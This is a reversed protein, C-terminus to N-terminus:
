AANAAEMEPEAHPESLFRVVLNLLDAPMMPKGLVGDFGAARRHREDLAESGASFAVIPVAANPGTGRRIAAVAGVGDLVPMRLDMLILDFAEAAAIGVAEQGNAAESVVLGMPQLIARVLERNVAHDDVVLVRAARPPLIQSAAPMDIITPEALPAAIEFYFCAGKGEASDVGIGGGMIETLGMCIALGLGTGGHRRTSSGDVQSFRKFLMDQQAAAIGPGQDRVEVFLRQADSRWAVSLAVEGADSFKVANGVLNLLVQRLRDPDISLSAPVADVSFTLLLDKAGAVQEFLELTERCVAAADCPRPRIEVQGAELKSFDLIDNVTTMLAAGARAAKEIHARGAAPLEGQDLALRTFGLVSTLPTRLEHSMNALFESKVAAAAEAHAQAARLAQEMTKRETVDRVIDTFAHVRGTLPDLLPTPRAELWVERGDKTIGRYELRGPLTRGGSRLCARAAAVLAPVDDPHLLTSVHRGILEDPRYGCISTVSPSIYVLTGDVDTRMIIDSANEALRRFADENEVAKAQARKVDTLDILIGALGSVFGDVDREVISRGFLHRIEGGPLVVRAEAEWDEGRVLARRMLGRVRAQDAGHFSAAAVELDPTTDPALGLLRYMQDSWNLTSGTRDARFYGVGATDEVLRARRNQKAAEAAAAEARDRAGTLAAELRRRQALAAATPLASLLMVALFVQASLLREGDHHILTAAPGVGAVTAGIAIVAVLLVGSVAGLTEMQFVVLLLIPPVLFLMPAPQTFVWLSVAALLTLSVVGALRLPTEELQQRARMLVFFTPGVLLSGLGDAATWAFYSDSFDVHHGWWLTVAAPLASLAPAVAGAMICYLTLDRGRSFDMRRGILRRLMVASLLVELGNCLTLGVAMAMSDGAVLIATLIGGLAAAFLLPWRRGKTMLLVSLIAGNAFWLPAARGLERPAEIAFLALLLVTLFLAAPKWALTRLRVANRSWGRDGITVPAVM